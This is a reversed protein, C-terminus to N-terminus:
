NTGPRVGEYEGVFLGARFLLNRVSEDLKAYNTMAAPTRAIFIIDWGPRL